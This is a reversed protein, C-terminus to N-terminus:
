SFACRASRKISCVQALCPEGRVLQSSEHPGRPGWARAFEDRQEERADPYRRWTMRPGAHAVVIRERFRLEPGQLVPRRKRVPEARECEARATLRSRNAHYLSACWWLPSVQSESAPRRGSRGRRSLGRAAGCAGPRTREGMGLSEHLPRRGSVSGVATHILRGGFDVRSSAGPWRRDDGRVVWLM